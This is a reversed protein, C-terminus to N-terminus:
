ISIKIRKGEKLRRRQPLFVNSDPTDVGIKNPVGQGGERAKAKLSKSRRAAPRSPPVGNKSSM